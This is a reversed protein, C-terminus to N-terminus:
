GEPGGVLESFAGVKASHPFGQELFVSVSALLLRLVPRWCCCCGAQCRKSGGWERPGAGLAAGGEQGGALCSDLHCLNLDPSFTAECGLKAARRLVLKNLFLYKYRAGAKEWTRSGRSPLNVSFGWDGRHWRMGSALWGGRGQGAGARETSAPCCSPGQNLSSQKTLDLLPHCPRLHCSPYIVEVPRRWSQGPPQQSAHGTPTTGWPLHSCSSRRRGM